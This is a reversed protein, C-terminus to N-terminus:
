TFDVTLEGTNRLEFRVTVPENTSFEAKAPIFSATLSSKPKARLVREVSLWKAAAEAERLSRLTIDVTHARPFESWGGSSGWGALRYGRAGLRFLYDRVEAEVAMELTFLTNENNLSYISAGVIKIVAKEGLRVTQWDETHIPPTAEWDTRGKDIRVEVGTGNASVFYFGNVDTNTGAALGRHGLLLLAIGAALARPAIPM